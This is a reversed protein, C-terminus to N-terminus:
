QEVKRLFELNEPELYEPYVGSLGFQYGLNKLKDQERILTLVMRPYNRWVGSEHAFNGSMTSVRFSYKQVDKGDWKRLKITKGNWKFEGLHPTRYEIHMAIDNRANEPWYGSKFFSISPDEGSSFDAMGPLVIPGWAPFGYNGQADSVTELVKLLAKDDGVWKRDIKWQAVINVGTLPEGSEADVVKGTIAASSYNEAQAHPVSMGAMLVLVCLLLILKRNLSTNM